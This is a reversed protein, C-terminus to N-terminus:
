VKSDIEKLLQEINGNDYTGLLRGFYFSLFFYESVSFTRQKIIDGDKTVKASIVIRGIKGNCECEGLPQYFTTGKM